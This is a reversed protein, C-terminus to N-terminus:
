FSGHGCDLGGHFGAVFGQGFGALAGLFCSLLCLFANGFQFLVGRFCSGFFGGCFFCGLGFTFFGATVVFVEAVDFGVQLDFEFGLNNFFANDLRRDILRGRKHDVYETVVNVLGWATGRASALEGGIANSATFSRMMDALVPANQQEELPRKPDGVLEILYKVAEDVKVARKSLGHCVEVTEKWAADILDLEIKVDTPNFRTSHPVCVAARDREGLAITITNNCVVRMQVYKAITKTSGDCSSALLLYAGLRDKGRLVAEHPTRALAWYKAGNFLVGATELQYGRQECLDRFFELVERPQVVKYRNSVLGLAEGTDNRFMVVRGGFSRLKGGAEFRVPAEDIQYDLGAERQWVEIAAGPTLREGRGHWPTDGVYAMATRGDVKVALEHAM